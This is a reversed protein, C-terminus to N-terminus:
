WGNLYIFAYLIIFAIVCGILINRAAKSHRKDDEQRMRALEVENNSRVIEAENVYRHTIEKREIEDDLMIKTGCYQCFTQKRGDEVELSAGCKPCKIEYAKM